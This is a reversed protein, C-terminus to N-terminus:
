QHTNLTFNRMLFKNIFLLVWKFIYNYTNFATKKFNWTIHFVTVRWMKLLFHKRAEHLIHTTVTKWIAQFKCFRCKIRYYINCTMNMNINRFGIKETKFFFVDYFILIFILQFNTFLYNCYTLIENLDQKTMPRSTCWTIQNGTKMDCSLCHSNERM